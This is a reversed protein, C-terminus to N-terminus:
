IYWQVEKSKKPETEDEEVLDDDSWVWHGDETKHLLGSTGPVRKVQLGTSHIKHENLCRTSNFTSM